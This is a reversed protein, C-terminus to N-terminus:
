HPNVARTHTHTHTHTHTQIVLEYRSHNCVELDFRVFAAIYYVPTLRETLKLSM